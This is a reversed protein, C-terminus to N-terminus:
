LAALPPIFLTFSVSFWMGERMIENLAEEEEIFMGPTGRESTEVLEFEAHRGASARM